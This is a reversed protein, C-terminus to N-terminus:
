AWLPALMVYGVVMIAADVLGHSAWPAYLSGTRHYLWAWMGGGVAVCVSLPIALTWFRGPFYVALLVVHHATFGVSSVVIAPWVPLYRTLRGFVFWRWYYEELLAHVLSYFAALLLFRGPTAFDMDRLLRDIKGPTQEALGSHRLWGFYLAFMGLGVLLGFAIGLGLGGATPMSPRLREREFWWVYFLPFTFQVFKGVGFAARVLPNAEAPEEGRSGLVVLYTWTLVTPFVM